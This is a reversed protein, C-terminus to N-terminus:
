RSVGPDPRDTLHAERGSPMSAPSPLGTHTHDLMKLAADHPLHDQEVVASASTTRTLRNKDCKFSAPYLGFM